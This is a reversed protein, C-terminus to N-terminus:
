FHRILHRENIERTRCRLTDTHIKESPEMQQDHWYYVSTRLITSTSTVRVCSHERLRSLFLLFFLWLFRIVFNASRKIAEYALSILRCRFSDNIPKFLFSRAGTFVERSWAVDHIFGNNSIYVLIENKEEGYTKLASYFSSSEKKKKKAETPDFVSQQKRVSAFLQTPPHPSARLHICLYTNHLISRFFTYENSSKM